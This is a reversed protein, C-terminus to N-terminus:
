GKEVVPMRVVIDCESILGRYVMVCGGAVVVFLDFLILFLRVPVSVFFGPVKMMLLPMSMLRVTVAGARWLDDLGRPAQLQVVEELPGVRGGRRHQHVHEDGREDREGREDRDELGHRREM